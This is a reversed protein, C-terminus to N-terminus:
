STSASTHVRVYFSNFIISRHFLSVFFGFFRAVYFIGVSFVFSLQADFFVARRASSSVDLAGHPYWCLCTPFVCTLARASPSPVCVYGDVCNYWFIKLAAAAAPNSTVVFAHASRVHASQDECVWASFLLVPHPPYTFFQTYRPGHLCVSQPLYVVSQM